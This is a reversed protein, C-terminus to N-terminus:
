VRIGWSLVPDSYWETSHKETWHTLKISLLSWFFRINLFILFFIFLGSLMIINSCTTGKLGYCQICLKPETGGLFHLLIGSSPFDHFCCELDFPHHQTRNSFSHLTPGKLRYIFSITSIWSILTAHFTKWCFTPCSIFTADPLNLIAFSPAGKSGHSEDTSSEAVPHKSLLLKWLNLLLQVVKHFSFGDAAILLCLKPKTIQILIRPSIGSGALRTRQLRQTITHM